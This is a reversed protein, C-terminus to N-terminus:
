IIQAWFMPLAWLLSQHPHPTHLLPSWSHVSEPPPVGTEIEMLVPLPNLILAHRDAIKRKYILTNPLHSAKHISFLDWVSLSSCMRLRSSYTTTWFSNLEYSNQIMRYRCEEHTEPHIYVSLVSCWLVHNIEHHQSAEQNEVRVSIVTTFMM